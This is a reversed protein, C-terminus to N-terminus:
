LIESNEVEWLTTDEEKEKKLKDIEKEYATCISELAEAWRLVIDTYTYVSMTSNDMIWGIRHEVFETHWKIRDELEEIIYKKGENQLTEFKDKATLLISLVEIAANKENYVQNEVYHWNTVSTYLAFVEKRRKEIEKKFEEIILNYEKNRLMESYESIFAQPNEIKM